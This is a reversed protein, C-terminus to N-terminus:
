RAWVNKGGFAYTITGNPVFMVKPTPTMAGNPRRVLQCFGHTPRNTDRSAFMLVTENSGASAQCVESPRKATPPPASYRRECTIRARLMPCYLGNVVRM